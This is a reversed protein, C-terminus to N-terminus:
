GATGGSIPQVRGARASLDDVIRTDMWGPSSFREVFGCHGGYRHVILELAAPKALRAIDDVPIVPDDAALEARTSVNLEGLRDGTIAYGDLYHELTEFETYNRVFFDTTATLTRFRRLDGFRYREPFLAAKTYLSRRWRNLFYRRYMWLGTELAVMTSAPRLVPAVAFVRDLAIGHSPARVATRLAFNGGLSYGVLALWRPALLAQISRVANVVEDIRCSHFLGENLDFTDGHDRFNLRFVDFGAAHLRGGVSLVYGSDACGEWGHLVIVLGRSEADDAAARNGGARSLFGALRVGDGADLVIRESTTRMASALREIRQRRGPLHSAISQVHASRLFPSPVFPAPATPPEAIM